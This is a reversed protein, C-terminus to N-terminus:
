ASAASVAAPGFTFLVIVENGEQRVDIAGGVSRARKLISMQGLGAEPGLTEAGGDTEPAFRSRVEIQVHDASQALRVSLGDGGAHKRANNLAEYVIRYATVVLQPNCEASAALSTSVALGTDRTYAQVAQRVAGALDSGALEPLILGCSINRLEKLANESLDRAKREIQDYGDATPVQSRYLAAISLLQIPGDHLEAGIRNLLEENAASATRRLSESERLLALNRRTLHDAETMRRTIEAEQAALRTQALKVIVALVLAAALLVALRLQDIETMMAEIRGAVLEVSSYLEGVAILDGDHDYLPLYVEYIRTQADFLPDDSTGSGNKMALVTEGTLAKEVAPAVGHQAGVAAGSDYVLQGDVGWVKVRSIYDRNLGVRVAADIRAAIQPANEARVPETGIAPQLLSRLIAQEVDLSSAIINREAIRTLLFTSVFGLTLLMVSVVILYQTTLGLDKWRARAEAILAEARSGPMMPTRIDKVTSRM